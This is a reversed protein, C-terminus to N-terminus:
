PGGRAARGPVVWPVQEGVEGTLLAIADALRAIQATVHTEQELAVPGRDDDFSAQPNRGRPHAYPRRQRTPLARDDDRPQAGGRGAPLFANRAASADARRLSGRDRRVAAVCRVRKRDARAQTFQSM